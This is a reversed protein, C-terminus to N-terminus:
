QIHMHTWKMKETHIYINSTQNTCGIQISSYVKSMIFSYSMANVLKIKEKM